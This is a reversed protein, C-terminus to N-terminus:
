PKCRADGQAEQKWVKNTGDSDYRPCGEPLSSVVSPGLDLLYRSGNVSLQVWARWEVFHQQTDGVIDMTLTDPYSITHPPGKCEQGDQGCYYTVRPKQQDLEIRAAVNEEAGGACALVIGKPPATRTSSIVVDKINVTSGKIPKLTITTGSTGVPVGGNHAIWSLFQEYNAHCNPITKIDPFSNRTMYIGPPWKTMTCGIARSIGQCTFSPFGGATAKLSPVPKAKSGDDRGSGGGLALYAPLAAVLATFGAVLVSLLAIRHEPALSSLWSRSRSKRGARSQKGM